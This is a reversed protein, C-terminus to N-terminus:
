SVKKKKNKRPIRDIDQSASMSSCSRDDHASENTKIKMYKPEQGPM